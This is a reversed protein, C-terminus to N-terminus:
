ETLFLDKTAFFEAALMYLATAYLLLVAPALAQM